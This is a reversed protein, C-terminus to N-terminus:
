PRSHSTGLNVRYIRGHCRDCVAPRPIRQAAAEQWTAFGPGGDAEALCCWSQDGKAITLKDTSLFVHVEISPTGTTPAVLWLVPPNMEDWRNM